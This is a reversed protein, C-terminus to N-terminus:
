IDVTLRNDVQSVGPAAWAAEEAEDREAWSHVKGRLTVNHGSTEVTIRDADLRASRLLANKIANKVDQPQILPVITLHNHVRRVGSLHHVAQEANYRQFGNEVEGELSICGDKVAVKVRNEPVSARWKLAHVAAQAIDTDTHKVGGPLQVDIENALGQVGFTRKAAREARWKEDWSGVHGSLTVVGNSATVGIDTSTVGPEWSIAEEVRRRLETDAQM